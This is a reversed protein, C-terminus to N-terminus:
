KRAGHRASMHSSLGNKTKFMKQCASCRLKAINDLPIEAHENELHNIMGVYNSMTKGCLKCTKMTDFWNHTYNHKRLEYFHLFACDCIKFSLM